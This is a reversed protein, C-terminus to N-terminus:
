REAIVCMTETNDDINGSELGDFQWDSFGALELQLEIQQKPLLSFDFEAKWEVNGRKGILRKHMKARQEVPSTLEAWTEYRYTEGDIDIINVTMEGYETAVKEFDPVFVDFAFAGDTDLHDYVNTFLQKRDDLTTFHLISNFPLYILRYDDRMLNLETADGHYVTPDLDREVAKEKLRALMQKSIDVGDVDYGESLFDLYLRGTGVAIELAPDGYEDLCDHYFEADDRQDVMADFIADYYVGWTEFDNM